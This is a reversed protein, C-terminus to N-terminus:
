PRYLRFFRNPGANIVTLFRVGNTLGTSVSAAASWNASTLADTWQLTFGPTSLWSFEVLNPGPGPQVTLTPRQYVTISFTVNNSAGSEPYHAGFHVTHTGPPFQMMVGAGRGVGQGPGGGPVSASNLPPLVFDFLPSITVFDELDTV